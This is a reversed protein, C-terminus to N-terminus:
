LKVVREVGAGQNLGLMEGRRITSVEILSVEVDVSKVKTIGTKTM